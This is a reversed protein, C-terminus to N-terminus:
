KVRRLLLGLIVIFVVMAIMIIVVGPMFDVDDDTKIRPKSPTSVGPQPKGGTSGGITTVDTDGKKAGGKGGTSSGGKSGGSSSGGSKGGGGGSPKDFHDM